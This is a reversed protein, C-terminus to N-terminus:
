EGGSGDSPEDLSTEANELQSDPGPDRADTREAPEGPNTHAPSPEGEPPTGTPNGERVPRDEPAYQQADQTPGQIAGHPDDQTTYGM